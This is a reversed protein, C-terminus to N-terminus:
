KTYVNVTVLHYIRTAKGWTGGDPNKHFVSRLPMVNQVCEHRGRMFQSDSGRKMSHRRLKVIEMQGISWNLVNDDAEATLRCAQVDSTINCRGVCAALTRRDRGMQWERLHLSTAFSRSGWPAAARRLSSWQTALLVCRMYFSWIWLETDGGTQTSLM